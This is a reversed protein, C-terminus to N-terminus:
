GTLGQGHWDECSGVFIVIAWSVERFLCLCLGCSCIFGRAWISLCADCSLTQTGLYQGDLWATAGLEAIMASFM